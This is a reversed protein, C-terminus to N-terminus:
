DRKRIVRIARARPPRTVLGLQSGARLKLTYIFRDVYEMGELAALAAAPDKRRVCRNAERQLDDKFAAGTQEIEEVTLQRVTPNLM